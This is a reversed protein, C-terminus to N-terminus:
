RTSRRAASNMARLRSSDPLASPPSHTPTLTAPTAALGLLVLVSSVLDSSFHLADAALAHSSTSRAVRTLGRWRVLDVAISFVVTEAIAFANVDVVATGVRIREIAQVAVGVSLAALFGTQALAAVAEIKAHGFQHDADAPKDAERVAFLTLASAGIDLANHAGESLLALSGSAFGAALKVIALVLSQM